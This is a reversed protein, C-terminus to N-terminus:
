SCEFLWRAAPGGGRPLAAREGMTPAVAHYNKDIGEMELEGRELAGKIQKELDTGPILRLSFVSLTFPRPMEHVLRITQEVDDKEEVPIDVIIDYAPPIMFGRYDGIVGAVNKIM